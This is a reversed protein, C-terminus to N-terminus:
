RHALYHALLCLCSAIHLPSGRMVPEPLKPLPINNISGKLWQVDDSSVCASFPFDHNLALAHHVSLLHHVFVSTFSQVFVVPVYGAAAVAYSHALDSWHYGRLRGFTHTDSQSLAIM